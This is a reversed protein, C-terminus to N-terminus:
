APHNDKAYRWLAVDMIRLRSIHPVGAATGIRDLRKGLGPDDQFTQFWKEWQQGSHPLGMQPGVESDYIPILAPRKRAMLKSATTPGIDWPEDYSRLVDWLRQSPSGKGLLQDFARRDLSTFDLGVPLAALLGRIVFVLEQLGAAAKGQVNITLMSVAVFDDGTLENATAGDGGGAWTDFYAGTWLKRGSSKEDHFYSCVYEVADDFGDETLIPHALMM